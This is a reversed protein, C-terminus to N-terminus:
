GDRLDHVFVDAIGNADGSVLNSAASVFAVYRGDPTMAPNRSEGNGVGGSTSVSVLLTTGSVLDRVFGDSANNTDGPVLDSASSEFLAYRGDSSVASPLSDGNGGGTGALNVSALTTTANTRDRLFVNLKAPSLAALPTDNSTLVLNNAASAFLVYRGDPSLIPGLSDGSGGAPPEQAPDRVSVLQLPQGLAPLAIVAALTVLAVQRWCGVRAKGPRGITWVPNAKM